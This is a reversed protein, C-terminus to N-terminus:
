LPKLMTRVNFPDSLMGKTVAFDVFKQFDAIDADKLDRVMAFGVLPVTPALAPPTNMFKALLDRVSADSNIMDIAKAWATAFGAAV